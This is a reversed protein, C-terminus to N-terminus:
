GIFSSLFIVLVITLSVFYYYKM